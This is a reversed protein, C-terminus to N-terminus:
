TSTARFKRIWFAIGPPLAILIMLGALLWENSLFFALAAIEALFGTWFLKRLSWSSLIM